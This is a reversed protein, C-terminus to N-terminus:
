VGELNELALKVLLKVKVDIDSLEEAFAGIADAVSEVRAIKEATGSAGGEVGAAAPAKPAPQDERRRNTGDEEMGTSEVDADM